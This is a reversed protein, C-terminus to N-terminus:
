HKPNDDWEAPPTGGYFWRLPDDDAPLSPPLRSEQEPAQPQPSCSTM